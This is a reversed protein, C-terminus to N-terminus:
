NVTLTASTSEANGYVNSVKVRFTAGNDALTAAALTYSTQTAGMIDVGDRQWQFTMPMYGAVTVSFNAPM